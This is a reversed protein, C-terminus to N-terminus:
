ENIKQERQQKWSVWAVWGWGLTSSLQSLGHFDSYDLMQEWWGQKEPRQGLWFVVSRRLRAIRDMRLFLFKVTCRRREFGGGLLLTSRCVTRCLFRMNM